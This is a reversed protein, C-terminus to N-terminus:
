FFFGRHNPMSQWLFRQTKLVRRRAETMSVYGRKEGICLATLGFGTSAISGVISNDAARVNCRDKVLGTVPDAQDWFFQFTAKELEELFADDDPSIAAPVKPAPAPPTSGQLPTVGARMLPVCAAAAAGALLQ